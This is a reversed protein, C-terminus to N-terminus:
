RPQFLVGVIAGTSDVVAAAGDSEHIDAVTGPSLRFLPARSTLEVSIPGAPGDLTITEGAVTTIPAGFAVRDAEDGAAEYGGFGAASRAVGDADARTGAPLVVIQHISFNRVSNRVGIVSLWEGAQLGSAVEPKLVEVHGPGAADFTATKSEPGGGAADTGLTVTSGSVQRVVFRQYNAPFAAPPSFAPADPRQTEKGVRQSVVVIAGLGLLVAVLVIVPALWSLRNGLTTRAGAPEIMAM